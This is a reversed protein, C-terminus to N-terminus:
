ESFIMRANSSGTGEHPSICLMVTAATFVFMQIFLRFIMFKLNNSHENYATM